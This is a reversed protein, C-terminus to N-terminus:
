IKTSIMTGLTCKHHNIKGQMNYMKMDLVKIIDSINLACELNAAPTRCERRRHQHRRQPRRVCGISAVAEERSRRAAVADHAPDSHPNNAHAAADAAVALEPALGAGSLVFATIRTLPQAPRNAESPAFGPSLFRSIKANRILSFMEPKMESRGSLLLSTM